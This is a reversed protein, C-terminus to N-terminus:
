CGKDGGLVVKRRTDIKCAQTAARNKLAQLRAKARAYQLEARELRIQTTESNHSTKPSAPDPM